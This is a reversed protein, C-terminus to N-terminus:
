AIRATRQLGSAYPKTREKVGRGDVAHFTLSPGSFFPTSAPVRSTDRRWGGDLPGPSARVIVERARERIGALHQTVYDRREIKNMLAANTVIIDLGAINEETGGAAGHQDVESEAGLVSSVGPYRLACARGPSDRRFEQLIGALASARRPVNPRQTHNHQVQTALQRNRFPADLLLNPFVSERGLRCFEPMIRHIFNNTTHGFRIAGRTRGDM